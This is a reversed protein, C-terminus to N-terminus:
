VMSHGPAAIAGETRIINHYDLEDELFSSENSQLSDVRKADKTKGSGIFSWVSNLTGGPLKQTAIRPGKEEPTRPASSSRLWSSKTPTKSFFGDGSRRMNSLLRHWFSKLSGTDKSKDDRTHTGIFISRIVIVSAMTLSVCAEVLTWYTSWLPATGSSDKGRDTITGAMRITACIIMVVSLSMMVALSLKQSFRMLSSKLIIIPISVIMIDCIIDLLSCVVHGALGLRQQAPTVYCKSAEIGFHPCIIFPNIITYVWSVALIGIIAWYYQKLRRSSGFVLPRFFAMFAFKVLYVSTWNMAAFIFAWKIVDLVDPIEERFPITVKKNMAEILYMTDTIKMVVAFAVALMMAALLVLADDLQIKRRGFLRIAFRAIVSLIAVGFLVGLSILFSQKDIRGADDIAEQRGPVYRAPPLLKILDGTIM